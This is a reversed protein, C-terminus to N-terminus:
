ESLKQQEDIAVYVPVAIKIGQKRLAAVISFRVDSAIDWKNLINNDTVFGRIMFKFGYEGFEELRIVPAPSKLVALSKDLVEAIIDRVQEPDASYPISLMIDDFAVFNRAYNWNSLPDKVIMANPVIITYSNKRRLIVSRPTIRRVVGSLEENIEIYDGIQIPRQVLIIFYSFFDALPEKFLYTISAILFGFAVLYTGLKAWLFAVVFVVLIIMYRTISMVTNQVGLDVPILSFIRRLVFRNVAAALVFGGIIIGALMALRQLTFSYKQGEEMIPFLEYEFLNYVDSFSIPVDWMKLGIVIGVAGLVVFLIITFLGYWTKSAPFREKYMDDQSIFFLQSSVQKSWGQLASIGWILLLTGALGQVVYSVLNGYGGVYPDSLVMLVIILALLVYYYRNLKDAIYPWFAGRKPLLGVIEKRGISFAQFLLIPILVRAVVSYMALLIRPTQSQRVIDTMFAQRFFLLMIAVYALLSFTIAFRREFLPVFIANEKSQNLARVSKSLKHAFYIWYPISLLYFLVRPFSQTIMHTQILLLVLFWLSMGVIHDRLFGIIAAAIRSVVFTVHHEPKSLLLFAQMSPLLSRKLFLMLLLMGLLFVLVFLVTGAHTFKQQIWTLIKVFSMQEFYHAGSAWTRSFFAKIDPLLNAIGERTIAYESRQWISKIELEDLLVKIEKVMLESLAIIASYNEIRMRNAVIEQELVGYANVLYSHVQTFLNAHGAFVTDKQGAIKKIEERITELSRTQVSLLETATKRKELLSNTIREQQVIIDKYKKIESNISETDKLLGRTIDYWSRKIDVMLKQYQKRANELDLQANLQEIKREYFLLQEHLYGIYALKQYSQASDPNLQWDVQASVDLAAGPEKELLQKVQERLSTLEAVKRFYAERKAGAEQKVKELEKEELEIDAVDVRLKAKIAMFNEKLVRLKQTEYRLQTALLNNNERVQKEKMRVFDLRAGALIVEIDLLQGRQKISLGKDEGAELPVTTKDQFEEQAKRKDDYEKQAAALDKRRSELELAMDEKQNALRKIRADQEFVGNSAKELQEISYYSKPELKLANFQPDKLYGELLKIHQELMSIIEKRTIRKSLLLQHIEKLLTSKQTLFERVNSKKAVDLDQQTKAIQAENENIQQQVALAFQETEQEYAKADASVHSLVERQIQNESAFVKQASQEDQFLAKFFGGNLPSIATCLVVIMYGLAKISKFKM